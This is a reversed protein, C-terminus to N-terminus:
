RTVMVKFMYPIVWIGLILGAVMEIDPVFLNRMERASRFVDSLLPPQQELGM